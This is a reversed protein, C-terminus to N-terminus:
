RSVNRELRNVRDIGDRVKRPDVVLEKETLLTLLRNNEELLIVVQSRQEASFGPLPNASSRSGGANEDSYGGSLRGSRTRVQELIQTTNLMRITGRKQALDFVDLFQKVAPNAVAEHNAVFENKHVPIVGATDNPDGKATYGEM